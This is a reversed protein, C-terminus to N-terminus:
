WPQDRGKVQDLSGAQHHEWPKLSLPLTNWTRAKRNLV